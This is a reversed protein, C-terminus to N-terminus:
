LNKTIYTWRKRDHIGQICSASVGFMESLEKQTLVKHNKFIFEIDKEKLITNGNHPGHTKILGLGRAHIINEGRGILELNSLSNNLKNGDIHNCVLGKKLYDKDLFALCILLHIRGLTRRAKTEQMGVALYGSKGLVPTLLRKSKISYVQGNNEQSILYNDWEPIPFFIELNSMFFFQGSQLPEDSERVPIPLVSPAFNKSTKM